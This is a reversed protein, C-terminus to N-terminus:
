FGFLLAPTTSLIAHRSAADAVWDDLAALLQAYNRGQEHSIWPWDSGWLLREPGGAALLAAAYRAPPVGQGLRYPASRRVWCRGGDLARLVARFSLGDPGERPDPSGFHDLVLSVGSDRLYPLLAALKAGELYLELHLGAERLRGLLPGHERIDPTTSRRLWNLRAGCIGAARLAHLGTESITPDVIATGRLRDRHAALATLLLSNDTGYFSPQTLVAHSIGAGDLIALYDCATADRGPESHREAVLSAGRRVVHAHSDVRM